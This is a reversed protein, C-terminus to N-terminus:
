FKVASRDLRGICKTIAAIGGLKGRMQQLKGLVLTRDYDPVYRSSAIQLTDVTVGM